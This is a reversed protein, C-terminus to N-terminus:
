KVSSKEKLYNQAATSTLELRELNWRVARLKKSHGHGWSKGYWPDWSPHITNKLFTKGATTGNALYYEYNIEIVEGDKILVYKDLAHLKVISQWHKGDESMFFNKSSKELYTMVEKNNQEQTKM